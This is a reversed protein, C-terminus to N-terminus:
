NYSKVSIKKINGNENFLYAVALLINKRGTVRCHHLTTTMLLSCRKVNVAEFHVESM